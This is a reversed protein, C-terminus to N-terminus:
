KAKSSLRANFLVLAVALMGLAFTGPEPVASAALGGAGGVGGEGFNEYWTDYGGPDGGFLSPIKRWAPYDAADVTGDANHDGNGMVDPQVLRINDLYTISTGLPLNDPGQFVIVLQFWDTEEDFADLAIENLPRFVQNVDEFEQTLDFEVTYATEPGAELDFQTMTSDWEVPSGQVVVFAQRWAFDQPAILDFKLATSESIAEAIAPGDLVISPNGTWYEPHQIELVSSGESTGIIGSVIQTTLTADHTWSEGPISTSLDTEFGSLLVEAGHTVNAFQALCALM